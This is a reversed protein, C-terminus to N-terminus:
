KNPCLQEYAYVHFAMDEYIGSPMNKMLEACDSFLMKYADKYKNSKIEMLEGGDKSVFYNAPQGEQTYKYFVKIRSDFGPNLLQFFRYKGPKHEIRLFTLLNYEPKGVISELDGGGLLQMAVGMLDKKNMPADRQLTQKHIVDLRVVNDTNCKLAEGTASNKIRVSNLYGMVMSAGSMNGEWVSGDELTAAAESFNMDTMPTLFGQSLVSYNLLIILSLFSIVKIRM